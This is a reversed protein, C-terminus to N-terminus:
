GTTSFSRCFNTRPPAQKNLKQPMRKRVQLIQVMHVLTVIGEGPTLYKRQGVPITWWCFRSPFIEHRFQLGADSCELLLLQSVSNLRVHQSDTFNLFHSFEATPWSPGRPFLGYYPQHSRWLNQQWGTPLFFSSYKELLRGEQKCCRQFDKEWQHTEKLRLKLGFYSM